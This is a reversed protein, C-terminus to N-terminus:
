SNIAIDKIQFEFYRVGRLWSGNSPPTYVPAIKDLTDLGKSFYGEYLGKGVKRIAEDYSDYAIYQNGYIGWGFPNYSGEILVKACTSEQCSISPLLKYDIGYIDAVEVFTRAYQALPSNYKNFFQELVYVRDVQKYGIEFGMNAVETIQQSQINQFIGFAIGTVLIITLVINVYKITKIM